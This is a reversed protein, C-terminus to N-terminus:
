LIFLSVIVSADVVRLGDVGEVRLESDVVGDRGNGSIAATGVPHVYGTAIQRVSHEYESKSITANDPDPGLYGAVLGDWVPGSYWRKAIRIGETLAELDFPHSLYEPDILPPDFPNSSAM